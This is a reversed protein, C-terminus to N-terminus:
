DGNTMRGNVLQLDDSPRCSLGSDLATVLASGDECVGWDAMIDDM